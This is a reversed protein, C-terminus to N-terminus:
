FTIRVKVDEYQDQISMKSNEFELFVNKSEVSWLLGSQHEAFTRGEFFSNFQGCCAPSISQLAEDKLFSNRMGTTHM